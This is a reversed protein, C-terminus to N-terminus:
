RRVAKVGGGGGGGGYGGAGGAGVVATEGEVWGRVRGGVSWCGVRESAAASHGRVVRITPGPVRRQRGVVVGWGRGWVPVWIGM